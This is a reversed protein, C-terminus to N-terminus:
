RCQRLLCSKRYRFTETTDHRTTTRKDICPLNSRISIHCFHVYHHQVIGGRLLLHRVEQRRRDLVIRVTPARALQRILKLVNRVLWKRLAVPQALYAHTLRTRISQRKKWRDFVENVDRENYIESQVVGAKWSLFNGLVYRTEAISTKKVEFLERLIDPVSKM